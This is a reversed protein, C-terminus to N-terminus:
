ELWKIRQGHKWIGKRKQKLNPDFLEGEGNQHGNKWMGEYIRGDTGEYQYTFYIECLAINEECEDKMSVLHKMSNYLPKDIFVLDNLQIKEGICSIRKTKPYIEKKIM